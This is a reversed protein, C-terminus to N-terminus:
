GAARAQFVCAAVVGPWIGISTTSTVDTTSSIISARASNAAAKVKIVGDRITSRMTASCLNQPKAAALPRGISGATEAGVLPSQGPRRRPTMSSMACATFDIKVHYDIHLSCM